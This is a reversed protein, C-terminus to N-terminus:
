AESIKAFIMEALSRHGEETLHMSDRESVGELYTSDLFICGLRQAVKEYEPALLRSLKVSGADIMFRFPSSSIDERIAAPCVIMIDPMKEWHEE